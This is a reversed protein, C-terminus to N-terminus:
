PAFLAQALDDLAEIADLDVMAPVKHFVDMSDPHQALGIAQRTLAGALARAAFDPGVPWEAGDLFAGLLRRDGDFLDLHLKALEYHRDAVMADGWDIVGALAGDELFVHRATLDGHTFVPDPPGLHGLYAPAQAALRPPLSSRALADALPVPRWHDARIVGDAPLRHLRGVARGLAAALEPRMEPPPPAEDWSRGPVRTTVLYPWPAAPDDFLRGEALLRPPTASRWMEREGTAALAALAAREAALAARWDAWHGFLKIVVGDILFTPWTSGVGPRAQTVASPASRGHRALITELAPAWFAVDGAYRRYDATDAFAPSPRM